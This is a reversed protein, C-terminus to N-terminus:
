VRFVSLFFFAGFLLLLSIFCLFNLLLFKGLTKWRGQGYFKRMAKYAYYIGPLYLVGMLIQLWTWEVEEDLKFLAIQILLFLFTFIYLHILFLAHDVYLFNRRRIYLLKLFLAYLPLSVFLMYPFMHLFKNLVEVTFEKNDGHYKEQVYIRRYQLRRKLFGDRESAPLSAQISDYVERSRYVSDDFRLGGDDKIKLDQKKPNLLVNQRLKQIAEYAKSIEASDTATHAKELMKKEAKEWSENDLGEITANVKGEFDDREVHFSSFFILFFLASTFVYMRIPHLYSARRGSIYERSLFGPRTILYRVTSFFKGDFHTIDAFFHSVLSWVTEHPEINEQGCDQCFRGILESKCNLCIKEHREKGHSV